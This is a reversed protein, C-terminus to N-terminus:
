KRYFGGTKKCFYVSTYQLSSLCFIGPMTPFCILMDSVFPISEVCSAPVGADKVKVGTDYIDAINLYINYLSFLCIFADNHCVLITNYKTFHDILLRYM